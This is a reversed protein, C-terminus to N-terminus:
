NIQFLVLLRKPTNKGYMGNKDKFLGKGYMPNQKGKKSYIEKNKIHDESIKNKTEQSHKKGYFPNEHNFRHVNYMPNNEGTVRNRCKSKYDESEWLKKIEKFYCERSCRLKEKRGKFPRKCVPCIKNM